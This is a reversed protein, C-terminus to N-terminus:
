LPTPRRNRRGDRDNDLYGALIAAAHRLKADPTRRTALVRIGFIKLQRNFVRRVTAPDSAGLPMPRDSLTTATGTTKPPSAEVVLHGGLGILTVTLTLLTKM